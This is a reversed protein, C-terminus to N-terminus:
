NIILKQISTKGESIFAIFYMGKPQQSLSISYAGNWNEAKQEYVSEGLANFVKVLANTHSSTTHLIFDGHSPNPYMVFGAATQGAQKISVPHWVDSTRLSSHNALLSQRMVSAQGQTFMYIDSDNAINMFNMFMPGNPYGPCANGADPFVPPTNLWDMYNYKGIPLDTIPQPDCSAGSGNVDYVPHTLGLWHGFEHTAARGHNNPAFATNLTDGWMGPHCVFGDRTTTSNVPLTAYAIPINVLWVNCYQAHDWISQPKVTYEMDQQAAMIDSSSVYWGRSNMDIREIGPEVLPVGNTDVLAPVFVIGTNAILSSWVPPVNGINWGQGAFDSNLVDFESMIQVQSPNYTTGIAEGHHLVHIILPITDQSQIPNVAFIGFMCVAAAIVNRKMIM